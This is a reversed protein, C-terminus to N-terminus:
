SAEQAIHPFLEVIADLQDPHPHKTPPLKAAARRRRAAERAVARCGPCGPLYAGGSAHVHGTARRKRQGYGKNRRRDAANQKVDGFSLNDARNDWAVDNGHRVLPLGDPNDLFRAAVLRHVLVDRRGPLVVAVHGVRDRRRPKLLGRPSRVRGLSSVWYGPVGPISGWVEGAIRDLPEPM